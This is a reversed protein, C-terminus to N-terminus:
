EESDINIDSKINQTESFYNICALQILYDSLDPYAEKANKYLEKYEETEMVPCQFEM